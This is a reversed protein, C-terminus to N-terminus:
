KQHHELALVQHGLVLLLLSRKQNELVLVQHGLVLVLLSKMQELVLEPHELAPVRHTRSQHHELVLEKRQITQALVLARELLRRM